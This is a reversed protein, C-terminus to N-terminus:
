ILFGVLDLLLFVGGSREVLLGKKAICGTKVFSRGTEIQPGQLITCSFSVLDLAETHRRQQGQFRACTMTVTAVHMAM